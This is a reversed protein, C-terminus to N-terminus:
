DELGRSRQPLVAPPGSGGSVTRVRVWLAAALIIPAVPAGALGLPQVFAPLIALGALVGLGTRGAKGHLSLMLAAALALAGMDYDFGYPSVLFTACLLAFGRGLRSQDKFFLWIAALAVAISVPWQLIAALSPDGGLSRVSGFVTPMMYLFVGSWDTLVSRQEVVTVTLYAHWVEPGFMVASLIVLALTVFASWFITAWDREFMLLLPVLVGLQPKVTLLGFAIGALVPRRGRCALGFLLLAGTLFGNQTAALNVTAFAAIAAPVVIRDADLTEARRFAEAAALFLVFTLALFLALAVEYPFHALPLLILLIHPPYSWARIQNQPGFVQELQSFYDRHNFILVQDGNLALHSGMWYNVFDHDVLSPTVGEDFFGQLFALAPLLKVLLVTVALCLVSLRLRDNM